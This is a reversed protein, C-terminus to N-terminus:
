LSKITCIIESCLFVLIFYFIILNTQHKLAVILLIEAKDNRGTKLPPLFRLVRLSGGVM